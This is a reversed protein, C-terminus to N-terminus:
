IQRVDVIMGTHHGAMVALTRQAVVDPDLLSEPPEAGFNRTRMPTRTREPNICNVRIGEENWEEALAQTLNVVACKTSSYIAYHARGRTYSSSTFNVLMGRSEALYPKAAVAVNVAGVYNTDILSSIEQPSMASIPKRILLGATNVVFDIAGAQQQVQALFDSVSAADAVDTQTSSRSASWVRAKGLTAAAVVAQGIGSSGGFVVVSKGELQPQLHADDQLGASQMLKEALFLDLPNTIKINTEAGMVTAVTVNPLTGRVVGCDCTFDRRGQAAAKAYAARITRLRFGQPTQGRRMLARPPINAICGNDHIAVLTDASPIVVDVAEFSQLSEVCAALIGTTVLPRVADHFLVITDEPEAAMAQVASETSGFRDAGGAVVKQLKKWGNKQALNWVFDAYQEHCVIVVEDVDKSREFVDVTHEIVLKGSLKIYQKPTNSGFREGKGGALVVGVVKQM